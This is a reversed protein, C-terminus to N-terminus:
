TAQQLKGLEKFAWDLMKTTQRFRQYKSRAGLVVTTLSHGSENDARSVFCWGAEFIYGTKGGDLHYRGTLLRNTNGYRYARKRKVSRFAYTRKQLVERITENELAYNLLRACDAASAVNWESLGTVEEVCLTLLGLSEAKDNMAGVFEQMELDTAKVLARAARNDSAMLAVHFLDRVRYTYGCRLVSRSSNRCEDRTLKISQEWDIEHDLLTLVTLLKTISAIPRVEYANKEYIPQKLTNDYCYAAEAYIRPKKGPLEITEPAPPGVFGPSLTVNAPVVSFFSITMLIVMVFLVLRRTVKSM